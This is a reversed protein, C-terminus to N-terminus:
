ALRIALIHEALDVIVHEFLRDRVTQPRYQSASEAGGRRCIRGFLFPGLSRAKQKRWQSHGKPYLLRRPNRKKEQQTLKIKKVTAARGSSLPLVSRIVM